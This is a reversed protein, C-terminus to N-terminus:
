LYPVLNTGHVVPPSDHDCPCSVFVVVFTVLHDELRSIRIRSDILGASSPGVGIAAEHMGHALGGLQQADRPGERVLQDGPALERHNAEAPPPQHGSPGKEGEHVFWLSFPNTIETGGTM